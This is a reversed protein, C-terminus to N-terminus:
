KVVSVTDIGYYKFAALSDENIREGSVLIPVAPPCGVTIAGLVRGLSDAVPILESPSMVAERPSMIREPLSLVPAQEERPARKAVSLLISEAHSLAAPDVPSPMLVVYAPDSFEVEIGEDSLMASLEDGSYGIPSPSVTIKMPEDGLVSYGYESLKVKIEDIKDIFTSLDV